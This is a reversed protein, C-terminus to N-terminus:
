CHAYEQNQTSHTICDAEAGNEVTFGSGYISKKYDIVIPNSKDVAAAINQDVFVNIDNVNLPTEKSDKAEDLSM